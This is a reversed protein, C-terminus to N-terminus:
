DTRRCRQTAGPRVHGGLSGAVPKPAPRATVVHRASPGLSPCDSLVPTVHAQGAGSSSDQPSVRQRGKAARSVSESSTFGLCTATTM